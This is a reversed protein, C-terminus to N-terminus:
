IGRGVRARPTPDPGRRPHRGPATPAVGVNNITNYRYPIPPWLMWGAEVAEGKYTGAAAAAVVGEPDDWCDEIGGTRILCQVAPDRYVAETQFDGGFTTEPYFRYVPLYLGGRYSVLIPRDNAVLEAFLSLVFMLAFIWLSWVARRNAKFNRWRRQNLPSLAM